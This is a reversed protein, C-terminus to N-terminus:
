LRGWLADEDLGAGVLVPGIRELSRCQVPIVLVSEELLLFRLDFTDFFKLLVRRAATTVTGPLLVSM